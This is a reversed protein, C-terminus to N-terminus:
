KRFNSIKLPHQTGVQRRKPRLAERTWRDFDPLPMECDKLYYLGIAYAMCRDDHFGTAANPALGKPSKVLSRLEALTKDDVYNIMAEELYTRLLQYATIKSKATTRFPRYNNWNHNHLVEKFAHGHNNEEFGIMANYRKALNMCAVTFDHISLTNSSLIACPSNTLKSLVIGVSYDGGTGGGIDVGMVYTDKASYPAVTEITGGMIKLIELHEFHVDCFYNDDAMAYAEEITLPYERKFLREDKIEQIKKRRWFLQRDDLKFKSRLHEEDENWEIKKCGGHLKRRYQPFSSWPLFIVHWGDDKATVIKHLADGFHNATSELVVKGKNVSAITSALWEDPNDYFAFESAHVFNLTYGRDAADAQASMSLCASETSEFTIRDHRKSATRRLGDPLTEFFRKDIKLLENASIQKNSVVVSNLTLPSTYVKWFMYARVVTTIGMQRAKVIAVRDHKDLMRIIHIQEDTMVEGFSVIKGEKDKIKLRAIFLVPDTLIESLSYKKRM